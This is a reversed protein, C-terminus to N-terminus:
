VSEHSVENWFWLLGMLYTSDGCACVSFTGLTERHCSDAYWSNHNSNQQFIAGRMQKCITEPQKQMEAASGLLQSLSSIAWLASFIKWRISSLFFQDVKARRREKNAENSLVFCFVVFIFAFVFFGWKNGYHYFRSPLPAYNKQCINFEIQQYKMSYKAKVNTLSIPRYNGRKRGGEKGKKRGEKKEEKIGGGGGKEKKTSDTYSLLM